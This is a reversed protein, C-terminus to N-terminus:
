DAEKQEEMPEISVWGPGNGEADQQVWVALEKDGKKVRFGFFGDGWEDSSSQIAGTITGGVLHDAIQNTCYDNDHSV